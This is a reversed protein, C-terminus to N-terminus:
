RNGEGLREFPAAASEDAQRYTQASAGLTDAIHHGTQAVTGVGATTREELAIVVGAFLQGVIGFAGDDVSNGGAAAAQDVGAALQEVEARQEELADLDVTFGDAM